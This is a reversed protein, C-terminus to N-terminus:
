RGHLDSYKGYQVAANVEPGTRFVGEIWIENM